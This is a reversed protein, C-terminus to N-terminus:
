ESLLLGHAAKFSVNVSQDKKLQEFHDLQIIMEYNGIKVRCELFNGLYVTEIVKGAISNKALEGTFKKTSLEMDEPRICLHIKSNNPINNVDNALLEKVGLAGGFDIKATANKGKRDSLNGEFLNAVGIFNAVFSNAPNAYITKPDGIQQIVAKDMVVIRDSM